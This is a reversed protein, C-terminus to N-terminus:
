DVLYPFGQPKVVLVSCSAKAVIKESYSAFMGKVGAGRGHTGSVVLDVDLEEILRLVVELLEGGVIRPTVSVYALPNGSERARHIELNAADRLAQENYAITDDITSENPAEYIRRKIEKDMGAEVHLLVVSADQDSAIQLAASIAARSTDSFDVPVLIRKIAWM